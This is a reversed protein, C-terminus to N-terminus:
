ENKLQSVVYNTLSEKWSHPYAPSLRVSQLVENTPRPAFFKDAFKSSPVPNVHVKMDLLEVVHQAIEYRSCVGTSGFHYVGHANNDLLFRMREVLEKAYTLTGFKDNVVNIEKAGDKLQQLIYSIFKKEKQGGGVIWGARIIIHKAVLKQIAKEGLLKTKGYINVPDPKDNETFYTKKGNFVAGTSVYILIANHKRCGEAINQTGFVNVLHAEDSNKECEDVNTKAALHIVVDPNINNFTRMVSKKDTIDLTKRTTHFILDYPFSSAVYSGVTGNSGTVLIKKKQM